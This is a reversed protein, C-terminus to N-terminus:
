GGVVRAIAAVVGILVAWVAGYILRRSASLRRYGGSRTVLVLAMVLGLITVVVDGDIRIGTM